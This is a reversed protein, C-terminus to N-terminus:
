AAVGGRQRPSQHLPLVVSEPDTLLPEFGKDGIALVATTLMQCRNKRTDSIASVANTLSGVDSIARQSSKDTKSFSMSGQVQNPALERM